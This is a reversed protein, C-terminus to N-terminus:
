ARGGARTTSTRASLGKQQRVGDMRLVVADALLAGVEDRAVLEFSLAHEEGDAPEGLFLPVLSEVFHM